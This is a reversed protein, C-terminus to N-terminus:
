RESQLHVPSLVPVIDKRHAATGLSLSEPAVARNSQMALTLNFNLTTAYTGDISVEIEWQGLHDQLDYVPLSYWVVVLEHTTNFDYPCSRDLTGDPRYWDWQVTHAGSAGEWITWAYVNDDATTFDSTVDVPWTVDIDKCTLTDLLNIPVPDGMVTFTATASDSNTGHTVTGVFEYIGQPHDRPAGRHLWWAKRGGAPITSPWDSYFLEPIPDGVPDFTSWYYLVNIPQDSLNTAEIVLSVVEGPRFVNKRQGWWYNVTYIDTIIVPSGANSGTVFEWVPGANIAGHEDRAVIQWYYRTNAILTGPDYTLGAQNESVMVDPTVDWAEFYVDYTLDDGDPDVGSWSLDVEASQNTSQDVPYPAFPLDPPNNSQAHALALRYGIAVIDKKAIKRSLIEVKVGVPV